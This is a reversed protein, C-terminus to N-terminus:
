PVIEFIISQKIFVIEMRENAERSSSPLPCPCLGIPFVLAVKHSGTRTLGQDAPPLSHRADLRAFSFNEYWFEKNTNYASM